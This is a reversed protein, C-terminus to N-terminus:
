LPVTFNLLLAFEYVPMVEIVFPAVSSTAFSGAPLSFRKLALTYQGEALAIGALVTNGTMNAAFIGGLSIYGVADAMGAVLTLLAAQFTPRTAIM